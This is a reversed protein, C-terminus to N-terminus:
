FCVNANLLKMESACESNLNSWVSIGILNEGKFVKWITFQISIRRSKLLLTVKDSKHAKNRGRIITEFLQAFSTQLKESMALVKPELKSNNIPSIENTQLVQTSM